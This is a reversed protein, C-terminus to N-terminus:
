PSSIPNKSKKIAQMFVHFSFELAEGCEMLWLGRDQWIGPM